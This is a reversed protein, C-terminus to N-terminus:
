AAVALPASEAALRTSIRDIAVGGLTILAPYMLSINRIEGPFASLLYLPANIIFALILHRKEPVRLAPWGNAFSVVLLLLTVASWGAFIPLGYTWDFSLLHVPNPLWVLNQFVYVELTGGLNHAYKQRVVWYAAVGAAMSAAILGCAKWFGHRAMLLPLLTPLFFLFTEKNYVAPVTLLVLLIAPGKRALISALALFMLETCDYIYGGQALLVPFYLIFIGTMLAAAGESANLRVLVFIAAAAAVVAFFGIAYMALYGFAYRPNAADKSRAFVIAVQKKSLINAQLAPPTLKAILNAADPALRRYAFPRYATGDLMSSASFRVM